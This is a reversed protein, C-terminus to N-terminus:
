KLEELEKMEKFEDMEKITGKEEDEGEKLGERVPRTFLTSPVGTLKGITDIIYTSAEVADGTQFNTVAKKIDDMFAFVASPSYNFPEGTTWGYVSQFMQGAILPYSLPGLVTKLMIGKADSRYKEDVLQEAIANYILPVVFWAFAIRKANTIKSGRGAKYNRAANNIIRLYKSTQSQFMTFLKAWSGSRQLPSLTDMRSSEQVRNTMDEAYKLGAKKAEADTGGNRKVEMYRSRYAAWSGQYVTFKDANRIIIFMAEDWNRTKALKKDYGRQQAFKIDREYGEGFRERLASSNNYMFKVKNLPDSWFSGMGTVFDKVPLEIAYNMVGSLQKAGIKWNIGLLAKTANARLTDVEQVIKERSVGDRAFDNLFNDLIKLSTEGHFDLINQRTEKSGFIRRFEFMADSWAKYHEMKAIHRQLNEFADTTKLEINNKVRGKLSNNKATAYKQMEQALLVNEPILVDIDRHVPSYNENFPLDVGFEKSFVENIGKYYEQYFELMSDVMKMDEKTLVESRLTEIVEPGWNLGESFSGELTEDRLWLEMQIAQARSIELTKEVGDAHLIKGYNNVKKLDNLLALVESNKETGYVEKIKANIQEIAKMEGDNQKNFATNTKETAYRSLFSEYPSSIKDRVSFVDMLEQWDYSQNKNFDSIKKRLTDREERQKISKNKSPSEQGGTIIDNIKDRKLQIDSERNFMEIEKLTRGTEKISQIDKLVSRLEMATMDQVGVMKLMQIEGILDNPLLQDPNATQFDSVIKAIRMQADAYDGKFTARIQNLKMQATREFKVSPLGNKKKVVTQKLEKQIDSVLSKRVALDTQKRMNELVELFEKDTKVNTVAKLFKGRIRAPVFAKAYDALMKRKETRSGEKSRIREVIGQYTARVESAEEKGIKRGETKGAKAGIAQQKFREKLLKKESVTVKEGKSGEVTKNIARQIKTSDGKKGFLDAELQARNTREYAVAKEELVKLYDDRATEAMTIAKQNRSATAESIADQLTQMKMADERTITKDHALEHVLVEKTYRSALQDITEGEELKFVKSYKPIEPHALIQGGDVMAKISKMLNPIFVEVKGNTIQAPRGDKSEFDNFKMTTRSNGLDGAKEFKTGLEANMRQIIKQGFASSEVPTFDKITQLLKSDVPSEFLTKVKPSDAGVIVGPVTLPKGSPGEILGAPAQATEGDKTRSIVKDTPQIKFLSKVKSWYPKDVLSVIKESPVSITVGNQMADRYGKGDLGLSKVMDLEEASIKEGTQFISRVKEPAIQVQTPLKYQTIIDKTLKEYVVPGKKFATHLVKGKAFLDATYVLLEGTEGLNFKDVAGEAFTGEEGTMKKYIMKDATNLAEFGALGLGAKALFPLAKAGLAIPVAVGVGLGLTVMTGFFEKNTLQDRLGIEKTIADFNKRVFAEDLQDPDELQFAEKIKPFNNKVEEVIAKNTYFDVTKTDNKDVSAPMKPDVQLNLQKGIELYQRDNLSQTLVYAAKDKELTEQETDIINLTELGKKVVGGVKQLM